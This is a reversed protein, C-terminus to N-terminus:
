ILLYKILIITHTQPQILEQLYVQVGKFIRSIEEIVEEEEM